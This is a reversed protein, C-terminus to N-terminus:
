FHVPKTQLCAGTLSFCRELGLSVRFFLQCICRGHSLRVAYAMPVIRDAIMRTASVTFCRVALLYQIMTADPSVLCCCCAFLLLLLLLPV